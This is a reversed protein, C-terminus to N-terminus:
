NQIGPHKELIYKVIDLRGLKIAHTFASHGDRSEEYWESYKSGMAEDAAKFDELSGSQKDILAAVYWASSM